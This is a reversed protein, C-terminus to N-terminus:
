LTSTNSSEAADDSAEVVLIPGDVEIVKVLTGVAVHSGATSNLRAPWSELNLRVRMPRDSDGFHAVVKGISGILHENVPKAESLSFRDFAKALNRRISALDGVQFGILGWIIYGLAALAVTLMALGILFELIM